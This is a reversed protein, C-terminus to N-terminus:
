TNITPMIDIELETDQTWTLTFAIHVLENTNDPEIIAASGQAGCIFSRVYNTGNAEGVQYAYQMANVNANFADVWAKANVNYPDHFYQATLTRQKQVVAEPEDGSLVATSNSPEATSAKIKWLPEMIGATMAANWQSAVTPDLVTGQINNQCIFLANIGGVQKTIIRCPDNWAVAPAQTCGPISTAM